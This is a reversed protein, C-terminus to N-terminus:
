LHVVYQVFIEYVEYLNQLGFSFRALVGWVVMFAWKLILFHVNSGKLFVSIQEHNM